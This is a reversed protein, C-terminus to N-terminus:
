ARQNKQHMEDNGDCICKGRLVIVQTFNILEYKNVM